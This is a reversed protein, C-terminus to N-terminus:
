NGGAQELAEIRAQAEQLAAVLDPVVKSLDVGQYAPTQEISTINGAEDRIPSDEMGDKEGTVAFPCVEQLEHAIFGRVRKGPDVLFEYEVPKFRKMREWAGAIPVVETKLRYDSSTNYATTTSTTTISGALVGAKTFKMTNATANSSDSLLFGTDTNGNYFFKFREDLTFATGGFFFRANGDIMFRQDGNGTGFRMVNSEGQVGPLSGIIVNNNGSTYQSGAQFGLYLNNFGTDQNLGAGHGLAVSNSVATAEYFVSCGVATNNVGNLLSLGAKAGILTNENVATSLSMGADCGILTNYQGTMQQGTRLGVAVNCYADAAGMMAGHGIAVNYTSTTNPASLADTGIAVNGQATQIGVGGPTLGAGADRGLTTNTPEPGGNVAAPAYLTPTPFTASRTGFLYTGAPILKLPVAAAKMVAFAAAADASGDPKAGFQLLNVVGMHVLKWRAGDAAVIITGGNDASTTDTADVSYKGGGGDRAAYYGTVLAETNVASLLLRLASISDVVRDARTGLYSALNTGAFGVLAAGPHATSSDALLSLVVDGSPTTVFDAIQIQVWTKNAADGGDVPDGLDRIRNGGAQYAGSGPIDSVSLRLSRDVEEQLQQIQITSRDSMDELVQPYFGGSNQIDTPQTNALGGSLTLKFGTAMPSGVRPYTVTGGPSADQDANLTVLYDSDLVLEIDTGADTTLTVKVDQKKFVKFTFPFNTTAGNGFFPGAKRITSSITM